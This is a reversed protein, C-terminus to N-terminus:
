GRKVKPPKAKKLWGIVAAIIVLLAGVWEPPNDPLAEMNLTLSWLYVARGHVFEVAKQVAHQVAGRSRVGVAIAPSDAFPVGYVLGVFPRRALHAVRLGYVKVRGVVPVARWPTRVAVTRSYAPHYAFPRSWAVFSCAFACSAAAWRWPSSGSRRSLYGSPLGPRRISESRYTPVTRPSRECGTFM